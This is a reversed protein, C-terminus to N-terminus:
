KVAKVLVERVREGPYPFLPGEEVDRGPEGIVEGTASAEAASCM